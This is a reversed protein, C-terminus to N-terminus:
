AIGVAVRARLPGPVAAASSSPRAAAAAPGPLRLAAGVLVAAVYAACSYLMTNAAVGNVLLGCVAALAATAAVGDTSRRRRWLARVLVIVSILCLALGVVGTEVLLRLYENHPITGTVSLQDTTTMGLGRGFLKSQRWAPLYTNWAYFRWELSNQPNGVISFRSSAMESIRTGGLPTAAFLLVSVLGGGFLRLRFGAGSDPRALGYVLLMMLGAFLGGLSVTAGLAVAFTTAALADRRARGGDLFVATSALCILAFFVAASNPQDFSGAARVQGEVMVGTGTAFQSVAYLAPVVGCWQLARVISTFTLRPPSAHVVAAAGLVTLSRFGERWVIQESAVHGFLTSVLVAATLSLYLAPSRPQQLLTMLGLVGIAVAVVPALDLSTLGQPQGASADVLVRLGLLVFLAPAIAPRPFILLWPLLALAAYGPSVGASLASALGSLVAAPVAWAWPRVMSASSAGHAELVSVTGRM